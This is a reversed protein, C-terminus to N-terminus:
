AIPRIRVPSGVAYPFRMRSDSHAVLGLKVLLQTSTALLSSLMVVWLVAALIHHRDQMMGVFKGLM